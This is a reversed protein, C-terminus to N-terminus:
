LAEAEGTEEFKLELDHQSRHLFRIVRRALEVTAAERRAAECFIRLAALDLSVQAYDLALPPELSAFRERTQEFAKEAEKVHGTGAAIKAAIFAVQILDVAQGLREALAQTEPLHPAAEAARGQLCLNFLFRCRVGLTPRPELEENIHSLAERLVETSSEVEGLAGLLQAKQLLLKGRLDGRDAVLAEALRENAESFRRQSKRITAELGLVIAENFLGSKESADASWLTTATVLAVDSGPLDNAVRRANAIHFWAYGRASLRLEEDGQCLEAIRLALEALELAQAPSSPAMEISKAAVLECLSWIQIEEIEEIMALRQRANRPELRPWLQAALDRDMPSPATAARQPTAPAATTFIMELTEGSWALLEAFYTESLARDVRSWGRAAARFSRIARLAPRVLTRPFPRADVARELVVDPVTRDGHLYVSVQSASTRTAAAFGTQDLDMDGRVLMYLLRKNQDVKTENTM